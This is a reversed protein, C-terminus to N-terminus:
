GVAAAARARLQLEGVAFPKALFGVAGAAILQQAEDGRAFGSVVLVRAGPNVARLATFVERGGLRPMVLDLVVLQYSGADRRYLEIATAGDGCATVSWGDATLVDRLMDRVSEEDDVM